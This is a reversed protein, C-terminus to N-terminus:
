LRSDFRLFVFMFEPLFHFISVSITNINNKKSLQNKNLMKQPTQAEELPRDPTPNKKRDRKSVGISPDMATTIAFRLSSKTSSFHYFAIFSFFARKTCLQYPSFCPHLYQPFSRGSLETTSTGLPASSYVSNKILFHGLHPPYVIFINEREM